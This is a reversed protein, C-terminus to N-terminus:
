THEQQNHQQKVHKQYGNRQRKKRDVQVSSRAFKHAYKAVYNRPKM